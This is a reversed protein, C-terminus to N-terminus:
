VGSSQLVSRAVVGAGPLFVPDSRNELLFVLLEVISPVSPPFLRRSLPPKGRAGRGGSSCSSASGCARRNQGWRSFGVDAAEGPLLNVNGGCIGSSAEGCAKRVNARAQEAEGSVKPGPFRKVGVLVHADKVVDPAGDKGIPPRPQELAIELIRRVLERVTPEVSDLPFAECCFPCGAFSTGDVEPNNVAAQRWSNQLCAKLLIPNQSGVRWSVDVDAELVKPFLDPEVFLRFVERSDPRIARRGRRWGPLRVQDLAEGRWIADRLFREVRCPFHGGFVGLLLKALSKAEDIKLPRGEPFVRASFLAKDPHFTERQWWRKFLEAGDAAEAAQNPCPDGLQLSVGSQNPFKNSSLQQPWPSKM